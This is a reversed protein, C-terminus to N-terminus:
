PKSKVKTINKMNAPLVARMGNIDDASDDSIFTFGKSTGTREQWTILLTGDAISKDLNVLLQCASSTPTLIPPTPVSIDESALKIVKLSYTFCLGSLVSLYTPKNEIKLRANKITKVVM